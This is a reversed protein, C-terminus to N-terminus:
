AAHKWNRNRVIHSINPQTVHYEQALAVQREGLKYRARIDVVQEETLKAVNGLYENQYGGMAVRDQMNEQHTGAHIHAPNCCLGTHGCARSHLVYVNEGCPDEGTAFYYALRHAGVRKNKLLTFFGVTAGNKVSSKAGMWPWCAHPGQTRDVHRDFREQVTARSSDPMQNLIDVISHATVPM